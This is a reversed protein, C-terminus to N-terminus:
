RQQWRSASVIMTTDLYSAGGVQDGPVGHQLLCLGEPKEDPAIPNTDSIGAVLVIDVLAPASPRRMEPYRRVIALIM